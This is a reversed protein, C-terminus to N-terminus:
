RENREWKMIEFNYTKIVRAPIGVAISYNPINKTVVANAGIIAGMGITVNPLIKAGEGIWVNEKIDVTGSSFLKRSAPSSEPSSNFVSGYDGHSHDSIYVNSAILVNDGIIVKNIVGIHVYNNITVNNGIILQPNFVQDGYSRICEIRAGKFVRFRRGVTIFKPNLIRFPYEIIFNNGAKLFRNKLVLMPFLYCLRKFIYKLSINKM